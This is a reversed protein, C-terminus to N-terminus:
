ILLRTASLIPKIKTHMKNTRNCITCVHQRRVSKQRGKAMLHHTIVASTNYSHTVTNVTRLHLLPLSLKCIVQKLSNCSNFAVHQQKNNQSLDSRWRQNQAVAFKLTLSHHIKIPILHTKSIVSLFGILGESSNMYNRLAHIQKM